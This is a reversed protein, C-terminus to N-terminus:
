KETATWSIIANAGKSSNDGQAAFGVMKFAEPSTGDTKVEMGINELVGVNSQDLAFYKPNFNADGQNGILAFLPANNSLAMKTRGYKEITHNATGSISFSRDKTDPAFQAGDRSVIAIKGMGRLGNGVEAFAVDPNNLGVMTPVSLGWASPESPKGNYVVTTKGETTVDASATKATALSGLMSLGILSTACLAFTKKRSNFM